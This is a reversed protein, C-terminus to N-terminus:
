IMMFFPRYVMNYMDRQFQAHDDFDDLEDELAALDIGQSDGGNADHTMMKMWVRM